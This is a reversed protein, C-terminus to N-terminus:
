FPEITRGSPKAFHERVGSLPVGYDLSPLCFVRPGSFDAIKLGAQGRDLKAKGAEMHIIMLTRQM